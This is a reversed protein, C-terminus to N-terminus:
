PKYYTPKLLPHNICFGLTWWWNQLALLFITSKILLTLKYSLNSTVTNCQQQLIQVLLVTIVQECIDV